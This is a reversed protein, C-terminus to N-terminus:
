ELDMAHAAYDLLLGENDRRKFLKHTLKTRKNTGDTKVLKGVYDFEGPAASRQAPLLTTAVLSEEGLKQPACTGLKFLACRVPKNDGATTTTTTTTTTTAPAEEEAGAAPREAASAVSQAVFQDMMARDTATVGKLHHRVFDADVARFSNSGHHHRRGFVRRLGDGRGDGGRLRLVLHLTADDDMDYDDITKSDQLQQGGFILRQQEPPIGEKEAIKAKVEEISEGEEVEISVTKGTLTKVYLQMGGRPLRRVVGEVATTTTTTTTATVAVTAIRRSPTTFPLRISEVVAVMTVSGALVPFFFTACSSLKM